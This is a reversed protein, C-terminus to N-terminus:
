EWRTNMGRQAYTAKRHCSACLLQCKEVEKMISEISDSRHWMASVNKLKTSPDIHHFELVRPDNDGCEECSRASIYERMYEINRKQRAKNQQQRRSRLNADILWRSAEHANMCEKCHPQRKDKSKERWRFQDVPKEQNCKTCIKV